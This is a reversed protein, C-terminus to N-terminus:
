CCVLLSSMATLPAALPSRYSHGIDEGERRGMGVWEEGGPGAWEGWTRHMEGGNRGEGRLLTAVSRRSAAICAAVNYIPALVYQGFARSTISHQYNNVCTTELLFEHVTKSM